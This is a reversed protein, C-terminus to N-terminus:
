KTAQQFCQVLSDQYQKRTTTRTTILQIDRNRLAVQAQKLDRKSDFFGVIASGSGTLGAKTAGCQLLRKKIQKLSPQNKFVVSEFHNELEKGSEINDIVAPCFAPIKSKNDQSTLRLSAQRYADVTAIPFASIVILLHSPLHDQLSYVESGTGLGIARGGLFFFPVDAGLEEGIEFWEQRSMKLKLLYDLAMITIAANSSGGGLGSGTPIQKQLQVSLGTKVGTRNRVAEIARVVLNNEDRLEVLNCNFELGNGSRMSIELNDHLMITQYVTRIEHYGDTRKGLIHLGLNIKAFSHLKIRGSKM